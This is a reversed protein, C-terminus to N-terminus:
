PNFSFGGVNGGHKDWLFAEAARLGEYGKMKHWADAPCLSPIIRVRTGNFEDVPQFHIEKKHHWHGIHAERFKTAGWMQSQESAMLMPLNKMKEEKGHAFAIMCKGWQYYKRLAPGNDVTVGNTKSLWGSLADGLYFVRETDHNGAVMLVDVPAISRLRLIADMMLKRGLVFSKQWRVDEHQPTGATTEQDQGDVNFFDNGVPFLIREVPWGKTRELLTELSETFASQSIKVDYNQGSEPAWILKGLHLDFISIELLVGKTKGPKFRITPAQKAFAKLMEQILAKTRMVVVKRRLWVKIQFLEM